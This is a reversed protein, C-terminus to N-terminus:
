WHYALSLGMANVFNKYTGDFGDRELGETSRDEFFVGLDYWELTWRKAAGLPRSYGISVGHRNADPLLPTVSETPAAAQDFYYGFRYTFRSLRHEAGVSLRFADGYDEPLTTNLDPSSPFELKLSDFATWQTWNFDVEWTWAPTPHWAVGLSWMAPFHLTTKVDDQTGPLGAAVAADFGANGTPIQTFTAEGDDIDVDVQSRYYAGFKWRDNPMWLTALNFGYGPKNKAELKVYAVNAPSSGGPYIEQRINNLEVGAFITNFGAGFSLRDSKAWALNFGANLGALDAKTVRDRGAFTEPDKWEVGLGFPANVSVGYAWNKSFHNTWYVTPPFFNGPEMEASTGFGPYPDIGAFSTSTRLWTGGVQLEKGELRVLAAPNFFAASADHVSATHAGAMGLAAAGQEYIGYGAGLAAGPVVIVAALAAAIASRHLKM